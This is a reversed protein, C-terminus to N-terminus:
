LGPYFYVLLADTHDKLQNSHKQSEPQCKQNPDKVVAELYTFSDVTDLTVNNVKINSNIDGLSNTMLKTKAASIEM